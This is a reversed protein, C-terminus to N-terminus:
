TPKQPTQPPCTQYTTLYPYEEGRRLHNATPVNVWRYLTCSRGEAPCAPMVRMM